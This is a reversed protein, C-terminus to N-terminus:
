EYGYRTLSDTEKKLGKYDFIETNQKKAFNM